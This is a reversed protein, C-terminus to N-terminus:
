RRVPGRAALSRAIRGGLAANRIVLDKNVALTRGQSRRTLAALLFPTVEKGGIGAASAERRAEELLHDLEAQDLASAAPPPHCLVLAGPAGVERSARHAAAVEGPDDFRWPAPIGTSQTYFGPLDDRGYAAVTVSASELAELTAPLDLISKIGSCVVVLPADRLALVDASVDWSARAGVHVGGLGGTAFIGIGLGAAVRATAAVTTGGTAGRSLAPGLDRLSLKEAGGPRALRELEARELGARLRGDLVAITAPVAGAQRVAAEAERAVELNHPPPLGHTVLTTELAVVPRHDDLAARVEDSLHPVM